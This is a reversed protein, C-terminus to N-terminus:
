KAALFLERARRLERVRRAEYTPSLKTSVRRRGPKRKPWQWLKMSRDEAM